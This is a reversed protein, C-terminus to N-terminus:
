ALRFEQRRLYRVTGDDMDVEYDGGFLAKQVTGPADDDVAEILSGTLDAPQLPMM